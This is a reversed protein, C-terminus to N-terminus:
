RPRPVSAARGGPPQCLAAGHEMGPSTTSAPRSIRGDHFRQIRGGPDNGLLHPRELPPWGGTATNFPQAGPAGGGPSSPGVGYPLLSALARNIGHRYGLWALMEQAPMEGERSELDEEMSQVLVCDSADFVAPDERKSIGLAPGFGRATEAASPDGQLVGKFTSEIVSDTLDSPLQGPDFPLRSYAAQYMARVLNDMWFSASEELFIDAAQLNQGGLTYIRGEAYNHAERQEMEEQLSAERKEMYSRLEQSEQDRRTVYRERSEHIDQIEQNISQRTPGLASRPVAMAIRPDRIQGVPIRRPVTFLVVRFSAGGRLPQSWEPDVSEAVVVEGPYELGRHVVAWPQAQGLVDSGIRLTSAHQPGSM